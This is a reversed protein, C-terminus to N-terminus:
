VKTKRGMNYARTQGRQHKSVKGNWNVSYAGNKSPVAHDFGSVFTVPWDPQVGNCYHKNPKADTTETMPIKKTTLPVVTTYEPKM